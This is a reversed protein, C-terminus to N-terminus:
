CSTHQPSPPPIRVIQSALPRLATSQTETKRSLKLLVRLATTYPPSLRRLIMNMGDPSLTSKLSNRIVTLKVDGLQPFLQRMRVEQHSAVPEGAKNFILFRSSTTGQDISGIFEAM